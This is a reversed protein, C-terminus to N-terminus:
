KYRPRSQAGLNAHALAAANVRLRDNFGELGVLYEPAHEGGAFLPPGRHPGAFDASTFPAAPPSPATRLV